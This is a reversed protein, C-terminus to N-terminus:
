AITKSLDGAERKDSGADEMEMYGIKANFRNQFAFASKSRSSATIANNTLSLNMGVASMGLKSATGQNENGATHLVPGGAKAASGKVSLGGFLMQNLQMGGQSVTMSGGNMNARMRDMFGALSNNSQNNGGTRLGFGGQRNLGGRFSSAISNANREQPKGIHNEAKGAEKEIKAAPGQAKPKEATKAAEKEVKEEAKVAAKGPNIPGKGLNGAPKGAEKKAQGPPVAKETNQTAEEPRGKAAQAPAPEQRSPSSPTSAKNFQARANIADTKASQGLGLGKEHATIVVQGKGRDAGAAQAVRVNMKLDAITRASTQPAVANPKDAVATQATTTSSSAKSLTQSQQTKVDTTPQTTSKARDAKQTTVKGAARALKRGKRSIKVSDTVNLSKLTHRRGKRGKRGEAVPEAPTNIVTNVQVANASNISTM